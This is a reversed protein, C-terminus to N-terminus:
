DSHDAYPLALLQLTDQALHDATFDDSFHNEIIDQCEEVIRRHAACEALVRPPDFPSGVLEAPQEDLDTNAVVFRTVEEDEAIRALLFDALTLTRAAPMVTVTGGTKM